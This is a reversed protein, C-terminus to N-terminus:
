AAREKKYLLQIAEGILASKDAKRNSQLRKIYIDLLAQNEQETLYYTAKIKSTPENNEQKKGLRKKEKSAPQSVPINADQKVMEGSSQSAPVSDKPQEYDQFSLKKKLSNGAEYINSM